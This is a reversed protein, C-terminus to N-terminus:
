NLLYYAISPLILSGMMNIRRSNSLITFLGLCSAILLVIFGFFNSFVMNFMLIITIIIITLYTYNIKNIFRSTLKSLYIGLFFAAICAVIIVALIILLNNFSIQKLLTRVAVASGTRTKQIAYATVFSLSMVVTNIIGLMFLFSKPNKNENKNSIESALVAAHGSGIGPLFSCLPSSIAASLTSKILDKKPLKIEKLSIIKQKNIKPKQKLSIFLSSLGFLGSLLPMLPQKIPLNFTLYGLFGALFFVIVANLTNEERLILYLSIFILLFPMISKIIAFLGPLFWIFVPTFILIIPIATLGGYLTFVFAEHAKGQKLMKHGQLISLFNEDDPAGLYISPIFDIFVHTISMAVIFIALSILPISSFYGLSSLLFAAILNIHIGPMLGTFTGCAIGIALALIIELIM